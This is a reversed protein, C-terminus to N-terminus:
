RCGRGTSAQTARATDNRCRKTCCGRARSDRADDARPAATADDARCFYSRQEHTPLLAERAHTGIRGTLGNAQSACLLCISVVQTSWGDSGGFLIIYRVYDGLSHLKYTSLNFKREKRASQTPNKGKREARDARARQERETERTKVKNCLETVFVRLAFGLNRTAQQLHALTSTLHVRMKALAHWTALMYLLDQVIDDWKGPFLGEFVPM